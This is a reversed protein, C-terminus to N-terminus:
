PFPLLSLTAASASNDSGQTHSATNQCDINLPLIGNGCDNTQATTETKEHKKAFVNDSTIARDVIALVVIISVLWFGKGKM